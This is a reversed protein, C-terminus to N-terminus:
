CLLLYTLYNLCAKGLRTSQISDETKILLGEHIASDVNKQQLYPMLFSPIAKDVRLSTLIMEEFREEISLSQHEDIVPQMALANDLWKNPNKVERTSIWTNNYCVRGHANPGIGMYEGGSWYNLNHISEKGAKAFNSIEYQHM